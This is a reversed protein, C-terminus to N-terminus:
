RPPEDDEEEEEDEEDDDEEEEEEEEDLAPRLLLARAPEFGKDIIPRSESVRKM